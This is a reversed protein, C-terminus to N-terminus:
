LYLFVHKICSFYNKIIKDILPPILTAPTLPEPVLGMYLLKKVGERINKEKKHGGLAYLSLMLTCLITLTMLYSVIFFSLFSYFYVYRSFILILRKVPTLVRVKLVHVTYVDAFCVRLKEKKERGIQDNRSRM